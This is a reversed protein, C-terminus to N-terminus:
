LNQKKLKTAEIELKTKILHCKKCLIQYDNINETSLRKIFSVIDDYCSLSGCPIIHDIQVDARKFWKKCKACKYETKLRKNTKDQSPRGARKLAEQMPKWYRFGNRLMSRIKGFFAAESMTGHNYPKLTIKRPM